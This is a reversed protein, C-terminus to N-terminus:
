SISQIVKDGGNSDVEKDDDSFMMEIEVNGENLLSFKYIM